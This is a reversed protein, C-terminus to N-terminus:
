MYDLLSVSLAQQLVAYSANLNNFALLAKVAAETQDVNKISGISNQLNTQVDKQTTQVNNLVVTNSNIKALVTYLDNNQSGSDIGSNYISSQVLKLADEVRNLTTNPDFPQGNLPDRNDVLNGQAIEGLARFMKEFAPDGATIDFDISQNDSIVKESNLSGGQYYSNSTLSWDKSAPITTAPFRSPDMTVFLTSGDASVGTVQVQPSINKDFGEMNIVTGIPYSTSFTVTTAPDAGDPNITIDEEIPTSDDFTITKGDASVSKVVYTKANAGSGDGGIVLTDGAKVTNFAGYETANVTNQAASFNLTGTTKANANIAPNLFAGPNAATITGTNGGTPNLTLNGTNEATLNRNALNAGNSNPYKINLGDYYAQFQELNTFPFNIPSKDSVGGGFVYKGNVNTNLTDALMKMASFAQSQLSKLTNYQDDSMTHPEGTTVGPASLVSSPGDVTYLPFKFSSGEFKFDPNAPLKAQLAAMVDDATTAASIDINNGTNDNAFTYQTGDITITRGVYDAPNDSSFKLEGGTIDPSAKELDMGSASTLTSKFDNITKQLSGMATSMAKLEIEVIKNNEIFNSTVGLMSELSVMTQAQMGFGSYTPSKIGSITQYNYLDLQAKNNLTQNLMNMYSNYTPVRVM